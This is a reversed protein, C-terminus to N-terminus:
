EFTPTFSWENWIDNKYRRRATSGFANKKTPSSRYRRIFRDLDLNFRNNSVSGM